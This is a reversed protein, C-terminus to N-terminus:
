QQTEAPPVRDELVLHGRQDFALAAGGAVLRSIKEGVLDARWGHRLRSDPDGALLSEIDHRTALLSTEIEIDRSLQALWAAVLSVAPRLRRDVEYKPGSTRGVPNQRGQEVAALVAEGVRGKAQREDVGRIRALDAVNKPKRQAIGVVALDSMIFRVPQDLEAARRERWAAVARAVGAVEGRLTRAEKIRRWAEDPDRVVRGKLRQIECETEFWELVKARQAEKEEETMDPVTPRWEAPPEPGGNFLFEEIALLRERMQRRLEGHQQDDPDPMTLELETTLDIWEERTM